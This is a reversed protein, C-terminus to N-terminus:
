SPEKDRFKGLLSPFQLPVYEKNSLPIPVHCIVHELLIAACPVRFHTLFLAAVPIPFSRFLRVTLNVTPLYGIKLKVAGLELHYVKFNIFFSKPITTRHKVNLLQALM